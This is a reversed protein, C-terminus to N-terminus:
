LHLEKGHERRFATVNRSTGDDVVAFRLEAPEGADVRPTDLDLTFGGQSVQLGGPLEAADGAGEEAAPREKEGHGEGSEQHSPGQP